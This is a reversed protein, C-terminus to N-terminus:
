LCFSAEYEEKSIPKLFKFMTVLKAAFDNDNNLKERWVDDELLNYGMRNLAWDLPVIYKHFNKYNIPKSHRWSITCYGSDDPFLGSDKSVKYYFMSKFFVDKSNKRIRTMTISKIVEENKKNYETDIIINREM